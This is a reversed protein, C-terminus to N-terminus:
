PNQNLRFFGRKGLGNKPLSFPSNANTVTTWSTLNTSQELTGPSFTITLNTLPSEIAIDATEHLLLYDWVPKFVPTVGDAQLPTAADVVPCGHYSAPQNTSPDLNTSLFHRNSFTPSGSSEVQVYAGYRSVDLAAASIQMEGFDLFQDREHAFLYWLNAPTSSTASMWNYPRNGAVWWDMDTFVICRNVRRTKALMAAMGGGQSHGCVILKNWLVTNNSYFQGWGRTSYNAQLYQLAKLLRNEICNTRDVSLFSVRNTGDIVELRANGAADADLPANSACLSNIADGNLYMLGLAHFGLNAANTPFARYLAPTAGTGPLFLVLRGQNTNAPDVVAYHSNNFQTIAPDTASPLFLVREQSASANLLSVVGTATLFLAVSVFRQM